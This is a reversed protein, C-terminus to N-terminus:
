VLFSCGIGSGTGSGTISSCGAGTTSGTGTTSDFASGKRRSTKKVMSGLKLLNLFDNIIQVFSGFCLNGNRSIGIGTRTIVLDVVSDGCLTSSRNDICQFCLITNRSVANCGVTLTGTNLRECLVILVANRNTNCLLNIHYTRQKLRLPM